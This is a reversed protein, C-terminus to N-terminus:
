FDSIVLHQGPHLAIAASMSPEHFHAISCVSLFLRATESSVLCVRIGAVHGLWEMGLQKGM